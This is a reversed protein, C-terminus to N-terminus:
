LAYEDIISPNTCFPRILHEQKHTSTDNDKTDQRACSTRTVAFAGLALRIRRNHTPELQQLVTETGPVIM